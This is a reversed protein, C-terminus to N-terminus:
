KKRRREKTVSSAVQDLVADIEALIIKMVSPHKQACIIIEEPINSQTLDRLSDREDFLVKHFAHKAKGDALQLYWSVWLVPPTRLLYGRVLEKNEKTM